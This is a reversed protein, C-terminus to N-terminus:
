LVKGQRSNNLRWVLAPAVKFLLILPNQQSPGQLTVM